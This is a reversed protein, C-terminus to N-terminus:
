LIREGIIPYPNISPKPENQFSLFFHLDSPTESRLVEVFDRLAEASYEARKRPFHIMFSEVQAKRKFLVRDEGLRDNARIWKKPLSREEIRFDTEDLLVQILLSVGNVTGRIATYTPYYPLIKRKASEPWNLLQVGVFASRYLLGKSDLLSQVIKKQSEEVNNMPSIAASLGSELAPIDSYQLFNPLYSKHTQFNKM